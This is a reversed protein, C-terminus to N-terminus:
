KFGLGTAYYKVNLKKKTLLRRTDIIIKNKM